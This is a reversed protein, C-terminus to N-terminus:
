AKQVPTYPPDHVTLMSHLFFGLHPLALGGPKSIYAALQALLIWMEGM